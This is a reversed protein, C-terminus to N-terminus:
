AAVKRIATSKDRSGAILRRTYGSKGGGSVLPDPGAHNRAASLTRKATRTSFVFM